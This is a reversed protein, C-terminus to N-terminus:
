HQKQMTVVKVHNAEKKRLMPLLALAGIFFLSSALLYMVILPFEAKLPGVLSMNLVMGGMFLPTLIGNVRGVFSEEANTLILTNCAIHIPPGMIGFVFQAFLAVGVLKVSGLIAVSVASSVFGILLMKQPTVKKSLAMAGIGRLIM